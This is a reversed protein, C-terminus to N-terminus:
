LTYSFTANRYWPFLAGIIFYLLFYCKQILPIIGGNYLIPSLLIEKDKRYGSVKYGIINYWSLSEKHACRVKLLYKDANLLILQTKCRVTVSSSIWSPIRVWFSLLRDRQKRLCNWSILWWSLSAQLHGNIVVKSTRTHTLFKKLWDDVLTM